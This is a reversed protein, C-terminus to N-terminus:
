PGAGATVAGLGSGSTAVQAPGPAAPLRLKQAAPWGVRGGRRPAAAAAGGKCSKGPMMPGSTVSRSRYMIYTIRLSAANPSLTTATTPAPWKAPMLCPQAQM